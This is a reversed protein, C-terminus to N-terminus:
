MPGNLLSIPIFGFLVVHNIKGFFRIEVNSAKLWGFSFKSPESQLYYSACLGQDVLQKVSYETVTVNDKCIMKTKTLNQGIQAALTVAM